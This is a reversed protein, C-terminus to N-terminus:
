YQDFCRGTAYLLGGTTACRLGYVQRPLPTSLSWTSSGPTLVETSSLVNSSRGYGGAVLLVKFHLVFNLCVEIRM